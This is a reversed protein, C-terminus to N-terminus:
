PASRREAIARCAQRRAPATASYGSASAQRRVEFHGGGAPSRDLCLPEVHEIAEAADLLSVGRQRLVQGAIM